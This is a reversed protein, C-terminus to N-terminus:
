LTIFKGSRSAEYRFKIIISQYVKITCMPLLKIRPVCPSYNSDVSCLISNLGTRLISRFWSNRSIDHFIIFYDHSIVAVDPEENVVYEDIGWFILLWSVTLATHNQNVSSFGFNQGWSLFQSGPRRRKPREAKEPPVYEATHPFPQHVLCRIFGPYQHPLTMNKNIIYNSKSTIHYTSNVHWICISIDIQVLSRKKLVQITKSDSEFGPDQKPKGM